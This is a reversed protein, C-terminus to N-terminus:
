ALLGLLFLGASVFLVHELPRADNWNRKSLLITGIMAVLLLISVVEFPLLYQSFLLEGPGLEEASSLRLRPNHLQAKFIDACVDVSPAVSILGTILGFKRVAANNRKSM